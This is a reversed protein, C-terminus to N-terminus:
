KDKREKWELPIGLDVAHDTKIINVWSTLLAESEEDLLSHPACDILHSMELVLNMHRAYHRVIERSRQEPQECLRRYTMATQLELGSPVRNALLQLADKGKRVCHSQADSMDACGAMEAFKASVRRLDAILADVQNMADHPTECESLDCFIALDGGFADDGIQVYYDQDRM